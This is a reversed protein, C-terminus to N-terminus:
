TLSPVVCCRLLHTVNRLRSGWLMVIKPKSSKTQGINGMGLEQSSGKGKMKELRQRFVIELRVWTIFTSSMGGRSSGTM